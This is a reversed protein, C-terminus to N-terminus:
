RGARKGAGGGAERPPVACRGPWIGTGVAGVVVIVVLIM